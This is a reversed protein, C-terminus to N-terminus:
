AAVLARGNLEVPGAVIRAVVVIGVQAVLPRDDGGADVGAAGAGEVVRGLLVGLDGAGVVARKLTLEDHAIVVAARLTALSAVSVTSLRAGVAFAPPGYPPSSPEAIWSAPEPLSGPSM